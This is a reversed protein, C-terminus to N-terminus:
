SESHLAQLTLAVSVVGATEGRLVNDGLGANVFGASQLLVMEEASFGGEPGVALRIITSDSLASNTDSINQLCQLLPPANDDVALVIAPGDQRNEALWEALTQPPYLEPLFPNGSQKVAARCIRHWRESRKEVKTDAPVVRETLLPVFRTVGLETLKELLWDMRQAKLVAQGLEIQPGRRKAQHVKMVSFEIARGSVDLLEADAVCGKGDLLQIRDGAKLRLVRSLHKVEDPYQRQDLKGGSGEPPLTDKLLFRRTM